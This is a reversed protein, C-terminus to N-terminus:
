EDTTHSIDVNNLIGLHIAHCMTIPKNMNLYYYSLIQPVRNILLMKLLSCYLYSKLLVFWMYFGHSGAYCVISLYFLILMNSLHPPYFLPWTQNWILNVTECFGNADALSSGSSELSIEQVPFM